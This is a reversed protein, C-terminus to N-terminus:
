PEPVAEWQTPLIGFEFEAQRQADQLSPHWTDAFCGGQASFHLLFFAEDDQVIEVWAPVPLRRLEILEGGEITGVSHRTTGKSAHVQARLRM